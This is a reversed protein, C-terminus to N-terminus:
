SRVLILDEVTARGRIDSMSDWGSIRRLDLRGTHSSPSCCSSTDVRCFHLSSHDVEPTVLWESTTSGEM